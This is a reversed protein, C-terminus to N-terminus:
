KLTQLPDVRTPGAPQVAGSGGDGSPATAARPVKPLPRSVVGDATAVARDIPATKITEVVHQREKSQADNRQKEATIRLVREASLAQNAVALRTSLDDRDIKMEDFLRQQDRYLGHAVTAEDKSKMAWRLVLVCGVGLAAALLALTVVAVIVVAEAQDAV